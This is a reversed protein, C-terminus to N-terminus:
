LAEARCMMVDDILKWFDALEAGRLEQMATFLQVRLLALKAANNM